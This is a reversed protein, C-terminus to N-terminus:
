LGPRPPAFRIQLPAWWRNLLRPLGLTLRGVVLRLGRLDVLAGRLRDNPLDGTLQGVRRPALLRELSGRHALRESQLGRLAGRM